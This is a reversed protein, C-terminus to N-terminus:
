SITAENSCCINPLRLRHGHSMAIVIQSFLLCDSIGRQSFLQAITDAHAMNGKQKSKNQKTMLMVCILTKQFSPFQIKVIGEHSLGILLHPPVEQNIYDSDIWRPIFLTDQTTYALVSFWEHPALM